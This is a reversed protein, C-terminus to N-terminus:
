HVGVIQRERSRTAGVHRVLHMSPNEDSFTRWKTASPMEGRWVSSLLNRLAGLCSSPSCTVPMSKIWQQSYLEADWFDLLSCLGNKRFHGWHLFSRGIQARAAGAERRALLASRSTSNREYNFTASGLVLCLVTGYLSLQKRVRECVEFRAFIQKRVGFVVCSRESGM